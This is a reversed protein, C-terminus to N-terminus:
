GAAHAYGKGCPKAGYEGAKAHFVVARLQVAKRHLFKLRAILGGEAGHRHQFLAAALRCDQWLATQRAQRAKPTLPPKGLKQSYGYPAGDGGLFFSGFFGCAIAPPADVM